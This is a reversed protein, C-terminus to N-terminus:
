KWSYLLLFLALVLFFLGILLFDTKGELIFLNTTKTPMKSRDELMIFGKKLKIKHPVPMFIRYLCTKLLFYLFILDYYFFLIFM